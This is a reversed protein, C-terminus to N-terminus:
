DDGFKMIEKRIYGERVGSDVYVISESGFRRIVSLAVALGPFLTHLREQVSKLLVVADRQSYGGDSRFHRCMKEVSSILMTRNGEDRDFFANYLALAGKFTGGVGCIRGVPVAPLDVERLAIDVAREIAVCEGETPLLNKVFGCYTNLSGIPLSTKFVIERSKFFILETSAGGVDMILGDQESTEHILGVFAYSAEEEGSILRVSLGSRAEIERLVDRSNAINRLAATAFCVVADIRMLDLFSRYEKLIGVTKDIGEREMMNDRIHAALGATHKRKTLLTLNQGEIEYIALRVTNSGIDIIGYLM